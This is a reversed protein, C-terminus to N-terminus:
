VRRRRPHGRDQRALGAQPRGRRGVASRAGPGALGRPLGPLARHGPRSQAAARGGRVGCASGPGAHRGHRRRAVHRHLLARHHALGSGPRRVPLPGRDDGRRGPRAHDDRRDGHVLVARGRERCGRRGRRVVRDRQRLGAAGLRHPVGRLPRRVRRLGRGAGPRGRGDRGPGLVFARARGAPGDARVRRARAASVAHGVAPRVDAAASTRGRPTRRAGHRAATGVPSGAGAARGSGGTPIRTPRQAGHDRGRDSRRPRGCRLAARDAWGRPPPWLGAAVHGSGGCRWGRGQPVTGLRPHATAVSRPGCRRPYRTASPRESPSCGPTSRTTRSARRWGVSSSTSTATVPSRM